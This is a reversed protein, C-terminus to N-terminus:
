NFHLQLPVSFNTSRTVTFRAMWCLQHSVAGQLGTM